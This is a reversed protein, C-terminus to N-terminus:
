CHANHKSPRLPADAAEFEDAPDGFPPEDENVVPSVDDTHSM